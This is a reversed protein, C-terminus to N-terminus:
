LYPDALKLVSRLKDQAAWVAENAKTITDGYMIKIQSDTYTPYTLKFVRIFESSYIGHSRWNSAKELEITAAGAKKLLGDLYSLIRQLATYHNWLNDQTEQSAKSRCSTDWATRAAKMASDIEIVRNSISQLTAM